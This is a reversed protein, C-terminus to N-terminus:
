HRVQEKSSMETSSAKTGCFIIGEVDQTHWGKRRGEEHAGLLTMREKDQVKLQAHTGETEYVQEYKENNVVLCRPCFRKM